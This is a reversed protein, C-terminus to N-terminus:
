SNRIGPLKMTLWSWRASKRSCYIFRSLLHYFRYSNFGRYNRSLLIFYLIVTSEPPHPPPAPPSLLLSGLLAVKISGSLPRGVGVWVKVRQFVGVLIRRWDRGPLVQKHPLQGSSQLSRTPM